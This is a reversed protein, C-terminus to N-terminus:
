NNATYDGETANNEQRATVFVYLDHESLPKSLFYGQMEDCGRDELFILQERTEVGEAIVKLKLSHGMAIIAETIAADDPDSLIDNIFSKDIKLRDLPFHKLYALSSYGTGFDDIALYIGMSKLLQLKQLAQQENSILLSETLELELLEPPLGSDSLAAAVMDVFDPESFQRGSVNIAIRLPAPGNKQWEACQMCATRLVWEGLKIIFGSDEALPIFRDPPIMGLEPHRWRLLAEVAIVTDNKLDLQPQYHLYFDGNALGLPMSNDLRLMEAAQANMERAYFRFCNKGSRKADYMATEANKQLTEADSGDQPCIAIGISGSLTVQQGAPNFPDSLSALIRYSMTVAEHRSERGPLIFTFVDGGFRCLTDDPHLLKRLREAVMILLRDGTEHGLTDNILKFRDICFFLVVTLERNNREKQATALYLRDAFLSRNPLGTLLDHLVMHSVQDALQKRETIDSRCGRRGLFTGNDDTIPRCNHRVWRISGGKTIIRYEIEEHSCNIADGSEAAMQDFMPRDAPHIMEEMLSPQAFLEERSYGTVEICAPSIFEFSGDPRRWYTFDNTFETVIRYRQESNRLALTSQDIEEVMSNFAGTLNGIEGNVPLHIFRADGTKEPLTAVHTALQSLPRTLLRMMVLVVVVAIAMGTLTAIAFWVRATRVPAFAEDIQYSSAILWDVNKLHQLTTIIESNYVGLHRLTLPGKKEFAHDIGAVIDPASNQYIRKPDPHLIVKHNRNILRVFGSAGIKAQIHHSLINPKFLSFSGAMVMVVKNQVIIPATFIVQLDKPANCCPLPESIHPRGDAFTQKLAAIETANQPVAGHHQPTGAIIHGTHDLLLLHNTFFRTILGTRSELWAQAATPSTLVAPPIARANNLLAEQAGKIDADINDALVTLMTTQHATLTKEYEREFFTLTVIATIVMLVLILGTVALTMRVRLSPHMFSM